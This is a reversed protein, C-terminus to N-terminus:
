KINEWQFMGMMQSDIPFLNRYIEKKQLGKLVGLCIITASSGKGMQSTLQELLSGQLKFTLVWPTEESEGLCDMSSMVPPSQFWPIKHSEMDQSYYDLFLLPELLLYIIIQNGYIKWETPFTMM